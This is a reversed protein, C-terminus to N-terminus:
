RSLPISLFCIYPRDAHNEKQNQAALEREITGTVVFYNISGDFSFNTHSISHPHGEGVICPVDDLLHQVLIGLLPYAGSGGKSMWKDYLVTRVFSVM